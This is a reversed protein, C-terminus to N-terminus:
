KSIIDNIKKITNKYEKFSKDLNKECRNCDDKISLLKIKLPLLAFSSWVTSFMFYLVIGLMMWLLFGYAM